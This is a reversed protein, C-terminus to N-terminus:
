GIRESMRQRNSTWDDHDSVEGPCPDSDDEGDHDSVEGPLAGEMPDVVVDVKHCCDLVQMYGAMPPLPHSPLGSACNSDLMYVLPIVIATIESLVVEQGAVERTTYDSYEM